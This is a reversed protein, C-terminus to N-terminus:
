KSTSKRIATWQTGQPYAAFSERTRFAKTATDGNPTLWKRGHITATFELSDGRAPLITDIKILLGKYLPYKAERNLASYHMAVLTEATEVNFPNPNTAASGASDASKISDAAVTEVTTPSEQRRSESGCSILCSVTLAM